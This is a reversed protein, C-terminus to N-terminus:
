PRYVYRCEPDLLPPRADLMDARPTSQSESQVQTFIALLKQFDPDSREAFVAPTCTGEGGAAAALPALLARSREVEPLRIRHLIAEAGDKHCSRCRRQYVDALGGKHRAFLERGGVTGPRTFTYTGYYPCNCDIWTVLRRFDEPPLDVRGQERHANLLTRAVASAHSGYYKAPRTPLSACSYDSVYKVLKEGTLTEYAVNFLDTYEGSLDIKGKRAPGAHCEACHRDLVPQVDYFFDPGHVGSRPPPAIESPGRRLAQPIRNGPSSHKPEHCGVCGFREGPSVM